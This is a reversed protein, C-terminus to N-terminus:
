HGDDELLLDSISARMRQRLQEPTFACGNSAAADEGAPDHLAAARAAAYLMHSHSLVHDPLAPSAAASANGALPLFCAVQQRCSRCCSSGLAVQDVWM